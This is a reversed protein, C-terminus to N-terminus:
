KVIKAGPISAAPVGHKLTKDPNSIASITKMIDSSAGVLYYGANKFDYSAPRAQGMELYIWKGSGSGSTDFTIGCLYRGDTQYVIDGSPQIGSSTSYCEVRVQKIAGTAARLPAFGALVFVACFALKKLM